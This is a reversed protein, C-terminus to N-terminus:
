RSVQEKGAGYSLGLIDNEIPPDPHRGDSRRHFFPRSPRNPSRRTSGRRREKDYEARFIGIKVNHRSDGALSRVIRLYVDNTQRMIAKVAVWGLKEVTFWADWVWSLWRTSLPRTRHHDLVDSAFVKQNILVYWFSSGHKGRHCHRILGSRPRKVFRIRLNNWNITM